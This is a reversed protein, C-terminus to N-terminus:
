AGALNIMLHYMVSNKGHETRAVRLYEADTLTPTLDALKKTPDLAFDAPYAIAEITQKYTAWRDDLEARPKLHYSIVYFRSVNAVYQQCKLVHRVTYPEDRLILAELLALTNGAAKLLIDAEGADKGAESKGVRPQDQVTWDWVALRLSLLATLLDNFRNEQTIQRVGAVKEVLVKAAQVIEHLIFEGLETHGNLKAPLIRPITEPRQSALRGLTNRLRDITRGDPQHLLLQQMVTPLPLGQNAYYHEADTLYHFSREPLDRSRYNNYIVALLDEDFLHSGSLRQVIQDFRVDDRVHSLYALSTSDVATLLGAHNKKEEESRQALFDEWERHATVLLQTDM